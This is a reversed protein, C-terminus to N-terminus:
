TPTGGDGDVSGGPAIGMSKETGPHPAVTVASSALGELPGDVISTASEDDSCGWEDLVAAKARAAKVAEDLLLFSEAPPARPLCAEVMRAARRWIQIGILGHARREVVSAHCDGSRRAAAEAMARVISVADCHPRGWCSWVLPKYEVGEDRLEGLVGAYKDRKSVVMATCADDGSGAAGPYAIGVDLAALRGCAASSLVDAPRLGPRSAVLGRPEICSSSDGMTALGLVTDRVGNHGRTSEGPACHLSHIGHADMRGGCVACSCSNGLVPAGLRLSIARSFEHPRLYDGTASGVAWMWSHDTGPDCLDDLRRTGDWDQVLELNCRIEM